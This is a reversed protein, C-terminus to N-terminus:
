GADAHSLKAFLGIVDILIFTFSCALMYVNVPTGVNNKAMDQDKSRLRWRYVSKGYGGDKVMEEKSCKELKRYEIVEKTEKDVRDALETIRAKLSQHLVEYTKSHGYRQQYIDAIERTTFYKGPNLEFIHLVRERLLQAKVKHAELEAGSADITNHFLNRM